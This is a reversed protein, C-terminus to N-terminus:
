GTATGLRYLASFSSRELLTRLEHQQDFTLARRPLLCEGCDIGSLKLLMKIAPILPFRLLISILENIRAQVRRAEDWQNQRTSRFLEVFLEPVLNYISGIGGDAGMLLGAALVEDRGNFVTKGAAKVRALTFLDFDTFKLGAINPISCLDLIHALTAISPAVEPFYYVYVPLKTSAALEEYHARVEHFSYGGIPPLSSVAAAGIREAHAALAVTDATRSSGVHIIVSKGAPTFRVAAEAVQRRLEPSQLLGEGTQGCVYIGDCGASYLRELLRRFGDEAFQWESTFPTVVAPLIGSLGTTM